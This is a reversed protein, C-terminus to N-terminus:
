PPTTSHLRPAASMAWNMSMGVRRSAARARPDVVSGGRDATARRRKSSSARACNLHGPGLDRPAEPGYSEPSLPGAARSELWPSADVVIAHGSPRQVPAQGIEHEHTFVRVAEDPLSWHGAEISTVRSPPQHITWM